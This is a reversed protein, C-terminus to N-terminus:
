NVGFVWRYHAVTRLPAAGIVQTIMFGFGAGMFSCGALIWPLRRNVCFSLMWASVSTGVVMGPVSFLHGLEVLGGDRGSSSVIAM